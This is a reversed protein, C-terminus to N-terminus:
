YRPRPVNLRSYHRCSLSSHSYQLLMTSRCSHQLHMCAVRASSTRGPLLRDIPILLEPQKSDDRHVAEKKAIIQRAPMTIVDSNDADTGRKRRATYLYVSWRIKGRSLCSDNEFLRSHARSHILERSSSFFLLEHIPRNDIISRESEIPTEWPKGNREKYEISYDDRPTRLYRRNKEVKNTPM